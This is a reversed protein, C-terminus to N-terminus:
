SLGPGATRALLLTWRRRRCGFGARATAPTHLLLLLCLLAQWTWVPHQAHAVPRSRQVRAREVAAPVGANPALKRSFRYPPVAPAAGLRGASFGLTQLLAWFAAGRESPAQVVRLLTRM